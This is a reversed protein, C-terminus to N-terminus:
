LFPLEKLYTFAILHGSFITAHTLVLMELSSKTDEFLHCNQERWVIWMLCGLVLNWVNSSYKGFWNRWCILLSVTSGTMVWHIGFMKFVDEWLAYAVDRNLLLHDM